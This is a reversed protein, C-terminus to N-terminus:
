KRHKPSIKFLDILKKATVKETPQQWEPARTDAYDYSYSYNTGDIYCYSVSGNDNFGYRFNYSRESTDNYGSSSTEVEYRVASSPLKVPGDGLLGVYALIDFIGDSSKTLSPTYQLYPNVYDDDDYSYVWEETEDWIDGDENGSFKLTIKMLLNNKWNFSISSTSNYNVREGHEYYTEKSSMSVKTIHNGSYSVSAEGEETEKNGQYDYEESSASMSSVYGSGNYGIKIVESGEDYGNYTAGYSITNPNYGFVYSSYSGETIRDVRGDENYYITYDGIKKLRLGTKKDLMGASSSATGSGPEDDDGGCAMFGLTTASLLLSVSLIKALKKM